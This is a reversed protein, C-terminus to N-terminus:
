SFHVAQSRLALAFYDQIWVSYPRTLCLRHVTAAHISCSHVYGHCLSCVDARTIRPWGDAWVGVEVVGAVEAEVILNLRSSSLLSHIVSVM